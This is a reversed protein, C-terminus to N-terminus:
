SRSGSPRIPASGVLLSSRMRQRTDLGALVGRRIVRADAWARQADEPPVPSATSFVAQDALHALTAARDVYEPGFHHGVEGAVETATAGPGARMGARDLGDLLELWAGVALLDPDTSRRCRRRWGRRIAAQGPGALAVVILLAALSLLALVWPSITTARPVTIHSPPAVPHAGTIENRPVLNAQRPPITTAPTSVSEPPANSAATTVDPTPDCVVWGYGAVPIEVWAWALRNTVTYSGAAVPRGSSTPSLRFGSVV